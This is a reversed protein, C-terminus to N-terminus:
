GGTTPNRKAVYGSGRWDTGTYRVFMTGFPSDVRVGVHDNWQVVKSLKKAETLSLSEFASESSFSANSRTM